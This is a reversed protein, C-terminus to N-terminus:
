IELFWKSRVARWVSYKVYENIFEDRCDKFDPRLTRTKLLNIANNLRRYEKSNLLLKERIQPNGHRYRRSSIANKSQSLIRGRVNKEPALEKELIDSNWQVKSVSFNVWFM